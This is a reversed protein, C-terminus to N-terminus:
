RHQVLIVPKYAYIAAVVLSAADLTFWQGPKGTVYPCAADRFQMWGM